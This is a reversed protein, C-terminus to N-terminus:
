FEGFMVIWKWYALIMYEELNYIFSWTSFENRWLVALAHTKVM